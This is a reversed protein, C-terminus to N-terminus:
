AFDWFSQKTFHWLLPIGGAQIISPVVIGFYYGVAIFWIIWLITVPTVLSSALLGVTIAVLVVGLSALINM